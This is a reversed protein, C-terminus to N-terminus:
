NKSAYVLLGIMIIIGPLVLWQTLFPGAVAEVKGITTTTATSTTVYHDYMPWRASELYNGDSTKAAGEAFIYEHTPKAAVMGALVILAIIKWKM